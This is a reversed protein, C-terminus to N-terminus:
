QMGEGEADFRRILRLVRGQVLVGDARRGGRRPEARPRAPLLNVSGDRNSQLRKVDASGDLFVVVAPYQGAEGPRVVLLDGDFIGDPELREGDVRLLYDGPRNGGGVAIKPYPAPLRILPRGAQIRAKLPLSGPSDGGRLGLRRDDVLLRLEAAGPGREVLGREELAHLHQHVTSPTRDLERALERLGPMRHHERSWLRIARLLELQRETVGLAEGPGGALARGRV